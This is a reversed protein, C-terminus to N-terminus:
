SVANFSAIHKLIKVIQGAKFHMINSLISETLGLYADGDIEEDAIVYL